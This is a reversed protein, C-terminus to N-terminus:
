LLEAPSLSADGHALGARGASAIILRSPELRPEPPWESGQQLKIARRAAQSNQTPKLRVGRFTRREFLHESKYRPTHM